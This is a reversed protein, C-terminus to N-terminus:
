HNLEYNLNLRYNKSIESECEEISNSLNKMESALRGSSYAILWMGPATLM